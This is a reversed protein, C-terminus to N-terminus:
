RGRDSGTRRRGAGPGGCSGPPTAWQWKPVTEMHSHCGGTLGRPGSDLRLAAGRCARSAVGLGGRFAATLIITGRWASQALFELWTM